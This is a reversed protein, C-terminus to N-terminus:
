IGYKSGHWWGDISVRRKKTPNYDELNEYIDDVTKSYDTFAKLIKLHEIAVNERGNTLLQNIWQFPDKVYLCIQDIDQKQHKILNM